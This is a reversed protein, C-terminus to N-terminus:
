SGACRAPAAPIGVRMAPRCGSTRRRSRSEDMAPHVGAQAPVHGAVEGRGPAGDHDRIQAVGVAPQDVGVAQEVSRRRRSPSWREGGGARAPRRAPSPSRLRIAAIAWHWSSSAPSSPSARAPAMRPVRESMMSAPSAWATAGDAQDGRQKAAIGQRGIVVQGHPDRAGHELGHRTLLVERYVGHKAADAELHDDGGHEAVTRRSHFGRLM